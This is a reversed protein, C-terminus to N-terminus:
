RKLVIIEIALDGDEDLSDDEKMNGCLPNFPGM